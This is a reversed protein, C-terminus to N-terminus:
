PHDKADTTEGALIEAAARLLIRTIRHAEQASCGHSTALAAKLAMHARHREDAQAPDIAPESADDGAGAGAGAGTGAGTGAWAARVSDMRGGMQVLGALMAEAKERHAALRARGEETLQYLKRKGDAEAEAQGIEELFTLAPYIVGPSPAYYGQSLEELRRILQYGHAAGEELLRLILLQLERAALKRGPPMRGIGWPRHGSGHDHDHHHGRHRRGFPHSDNTMDCSIYRVITKRLVGHKWCLRM